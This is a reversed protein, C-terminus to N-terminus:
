RSSAVRPPRLGDQEGPWVVGDLFEEIASAVRGLVAASDALPGPVLMDHGADEIELIHGTLGRAVDGAWFRDATGGVLLFPAAARRLASLDDPHSLVPTLWVAPLERDAALAAAFVGLSKGILVPRPASLADLHPAAQAYAQRERDAPPLRVLEDAGTWRVTGIEAGRREAASRAYSLLPGDPGYGRGPLILAARDPRPETM